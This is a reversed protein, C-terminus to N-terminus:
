LFKTPIRVHTGNKLVKQPHSGITKNAVNAKLTESVAERLKGEHLLKPAMWHKVLKEVTNLSPTIRFVKYSAKAPTKRGAPDIVYEVLRVVASQRIRAGGASRLPHEDWTIDDIFWKINQTQFPAPILPFERESSAGGASYVQLLPPKGVGAHFATAKEGTAKIGRGGMWELWQIKDEVDEGSHQKGEGALMANFLVPVTLTFPEYGELITLAKRQPRPIHMWKAYGASPTPAAEGALVELEVVEGLLEGVFIIYGPRFLLSGASPIGAKYRALGVGPM